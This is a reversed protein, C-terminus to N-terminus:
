RKSVVGTADVRLGDANSVCVSIPNTELIPTRAYTFTSTDLSSLHEIIIPTEICFEEDPRIYRYFSPPTEKFRVSFHGSNKSDPTTVQRIYHLPTRRDVEMYIALNYRPGRPDKKNAHGSQVAEVTVVEGEPGNIINGLDIKNNSEPNLRAIAPHTINKNADTM